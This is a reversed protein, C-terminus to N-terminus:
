GVNFWSWVALVAPIPCALAGLLLARRPGQMRRLGPAFAVAGLVAAAGAVGVLRELLFGGMAAGAAVGWVAAM